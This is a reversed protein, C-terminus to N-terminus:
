NFAAEAMWRDDRAASKDSYVSQARERYYAARPNIAPEPDDGYESGDGYTEWNESGSASNGPTSISSLTSVTSNSFHRSDSSTQSGRSSDYDMYSKMRYTNARPTTRVEEENAGDGYARYQGDDGFPSVSRISRNGRSQNDDDERREQEYQHRQYPTM